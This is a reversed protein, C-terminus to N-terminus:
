NASPSSSAAKDAAEKKLKERLLNRIEPIEKEMFELSHYGSYKQGNVILIPLDGDVKLTQKFSALASLELDSDFSYVRLEPYKNRLADLVLEQKVCDPCEYQTYFYLVLVIKENCKEIVKKSLLYDKIELLSYYKKLNILEDINTDINKESYSIKEALSNLEQSLSIQSSANCTADALLSFQTESSLLDIFVKNQISKIESIKKNSFYNSIYSATLFIFLTIFFVVIYKVWDPRSGSVGEKEIEM